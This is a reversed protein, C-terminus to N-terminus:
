ATKAAKKKEAAQLQHEMAKSTQQMERRLMIESQAFTRTSFGAENLVNRLRQLEAMNEALNSKLAAAKTKANEFDNKLSQAPAETSRLQIALSAVKEQAKSLEQEVDHTSHKLKAFRDAVSKTEYLGKLSQKLQQQASAFNRTGTQSGIMVTNMGQIKRSSVGAEDAARRMSETYVSDLKGRLNIILEM